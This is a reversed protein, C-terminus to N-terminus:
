TGSWPRPPLGDLQRSFEELYWRRYALAAPPTALTLMADGRRCYEDADDLMAGLQVAAAAAGPPVRFVLDVTEAGRDIADELEQETEETFGSFRAELDGILALLRDPVDGSSRDQQQARLLTFERRLEDGHEAAARHVDTPLRVLRVEVLDARQGVEVQPVDGGM